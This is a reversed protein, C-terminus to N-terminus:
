ILVIAAIAAGILAGVVAARFIMRKVGFYDERFIVEFPNRFRFNM